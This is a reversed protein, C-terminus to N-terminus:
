RFPAIFVRRCFGVDNESRPAPDDENMAAVPVPLLVAILSSEICGVLCKPFILKCVVALSIALYCLVPFGGAPLNANYSTATKTTDSFYRMGVEVQRLLNVVQEPTHRKKAVQLEKADLRRSERQFLDLGASWGPDYVGVSPRCPIPNTM